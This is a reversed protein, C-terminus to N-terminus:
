TARAKIWNIFQSFLYGTDRPGSCAEPHFQVGMVPRDAFAIGEVTGDNLNVYTIEIGRGAVSEPVITYGHNQTTIYTRDSQLHKVPHNCGRHGFHLKETDGGAALGLLQHGLCIGFIPIGTDLLGRVTEIDEGNEKPDGPGNSLFIGEPEAALIEPLPNGAPFVTLDCGLASLSKLISRKIGFDMVAVRHGAGEIRYPKEATVERVPQKIRRNKLDGIVERGPVADCIMGMLTGYTRIKRTLSRTDLGQIAVIGHRKLYADLTGTCKWNSPTECCERVIFGRVQPRASEEDEDNVGYNGILPYTMTVIQGCYSPDTLVEQYGTMGTNFVVEGTVDGEAGFRRGEYVTGDELVLYAMTEEENVLPM